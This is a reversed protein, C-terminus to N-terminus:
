SIVLKVHFYKAYKKLLDFDPWIISDEIQNLTMPSTNFIRALANVTIKNELRLNLLKKAIDTVYIEKLKPEPNM